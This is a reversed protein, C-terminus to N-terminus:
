ITFKKLLQYGSEILDDAKAYDPNDEDRFFGFAARRFAMAVNVKKWDPHEISKSLLATAYDHLNESVATLLIKLNARYAVNFSTADEKFQGLIYIITNGNTDVDAGKDIMYIEDNVIVADAALLETFSTGEPGYIFNTGKEITVGSMGAFAVYMNLDLIGDYFATTPELSGREGEYSFISPTLNLSYGRAFQEVTPLYVNSNDLKMQYTVSDFMRSVTIYYCIISSIIGDDYGRSRGYAKFGTDDKILVSRGSKDQSIFKIKVDLDM